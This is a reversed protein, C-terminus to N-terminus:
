SVLVRVYLTCYQIYTRGMKNNDERNGTGTPGESVYCSPFKLKGGKPKARATERKNGNAPLGLIRVLWTVFLRLM